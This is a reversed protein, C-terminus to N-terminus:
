SLTIMILAPRTCTTYSGITITLMESIGEQLFFEIITGNEVSIIDEGGFQAYIPVDLPTNFHDLQIFALGSMNSIVEAEWVTLNEQYYEDDEM